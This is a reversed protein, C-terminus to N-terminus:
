LIIQPPLNMTDMKVPHNPTSAMSFVLRFVVTCTIYYLPAITKIKMIQTININYIRMNYIVMNYVINYIRMNVYIINYIRM